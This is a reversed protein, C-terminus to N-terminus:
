PNFFPPFFPNIAYLGPQFGSPFLPPILYRQAIQFGLVARLATRDAPLPAGLYLCLPGVLLLFNYRLFDSDIPNIFPTYVVRTVTYVKRPRLTDRLPPRGGM